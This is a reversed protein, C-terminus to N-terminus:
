TRWRALLKRKLMDVEPVRFLVAFIGYSIAGAAVASLTQLLVGMGTQMNVQPGIVGKTIQVCVAMAVSALVIKATSWVIRNDDLYGLHVRLAALLWLMNIISAISFAAALGLVGYTPALLYSLVVNIIVSIISIVVPTKTDQRAYFSRVMLPLVSQAFLSISFIGLSNATLITDNWDFRGTGLFLRVIQARLLLMGMSIPIVWFLVNRFSQSFQRIFETANNKTFHEAFVPYSAIALSVGFVSIPFYQLNNALNFVSVSGEELQSAVRTVVWLNLQAAALGFTRPVMLKLMKSFGATHIGFQPRFRYGLAFVSPLQVLLHLAAGVVVGWALGSVGWVQVFWLIGVIIGLNYVIPALSYAVYRHFSNLIGALINSVGFLVMAISMIRTFQITLRMGEGDFGPAILEIAFDPFVFIVLGVVILSTTLTTMVANAFKWSAIRDRQWLEVFIPIFASSLAGLIFVNFFFDPVKFAAYYADLIEAAGFHSALLRERYLGLVKSVVSAVGIIAAGGGITKLLTTSRPDPM